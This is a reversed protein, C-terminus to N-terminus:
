VADGNRLFSYAAKIMPLTVPSEGNDEEEIALALAAQAGEMTRAPDTWKRLVTRPETWLHHLEDSQEDPAALFAQWGRKYAAIADLIPDASVATAVAMPNTAALVLGGKLVTSPNM